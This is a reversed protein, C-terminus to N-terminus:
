KVLSNRDPSDAPASSLSSSSAELERDKERGRRRAYAILLIAGLALFVFGINDGVWEFFRDLDLYRDALILCGIGFLIVGWTLTGARASRKPLIPAMVGAASVSAAASGENIARCIRLADFVGFFWIFATAIGFIPELGGIARSDMTVLLAFILAIGIGRQYAGLYIHGIGPFFSFVVTWFKSKEPRPPVPVTSTAHAPCRISGLVERRCEACVGAGCATCYGVADRDPHLHCKM